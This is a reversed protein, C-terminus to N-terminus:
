MQRLGSGGLRSSRSLFSSVVLGKQARVQALSSSVWGTDEWGTSSM